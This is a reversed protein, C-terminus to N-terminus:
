LSYNEYEHITWRMMNGTTIELNIKKWVAERKILTQLLQIHASIACSPKLSFVDKIEYWTLILYKEISGIWM